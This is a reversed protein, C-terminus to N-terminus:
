FIASRSGPHRPGQPPKVQHYANSETGELSGTNEGKCSPV